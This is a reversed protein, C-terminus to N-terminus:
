LSYHLKLRQQMRRAQRLAERLIARDMEHLKAPQLLDAPDSGVQIQQLQHALRLRLINGLAVDAAAYENAFAVQGIVALRDRTSVAKAGMGLALIRAADVFIRSAFKKLDLATEDNGSIEGRFNLPVDVQLANGAMLHLFAPTNATLALYARQLREALQPNGHIPRLDFFITAGLLAEPDPLRVWDLFRERWEDVSLCCDPNGAMINGPCLSFGALALQRNVEQAFPLFLERLAAAERADSAEFVLGNDQDTVLTQEGRGESGFALWCWDVSPLRFRAAVLEIIRATLGDNVASILQTASLGDGVTQQQLFLQQWAARLDAGVQEVGSLAALGEARGFIELQYLSAARPDKM